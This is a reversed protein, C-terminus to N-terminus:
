VPIQEYSLNSVDVHEGAHEITVSVIKGDADFEILVDENVDRTEAIQRDSFVVLLTDTAQFYRIDM